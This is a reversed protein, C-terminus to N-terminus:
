TTSRSTQEVLERVMAYIQDRVRRTHDFRDGSQYYPDVVRWHRTKPHDTVFKPMYPTPFAIVIDAAEVMAQTVLKSGATPMTLGVEELVERTEAFTGGLPYPACGASTADSSQTLDNYIAKGMVSRMKNGECVFLIKM